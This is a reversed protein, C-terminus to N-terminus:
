QSELFTEMFINLQVQIGYTKKAIVGNMYPVNEYIKTKNVREYNAIIEPNEFDLLAHYAHAM